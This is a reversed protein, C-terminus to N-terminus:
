TDERKRIREIDVEPTWLGDVFSWDDHLMGDVGDRWECVRCVREPNCHYTNEGPHSALCPADRVKRMLDMALERLHEIEDILVRPIDADQPGLHGRQVNRKLEDFNRIM